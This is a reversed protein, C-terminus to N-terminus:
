RRRFGKKDRPEGEAQLHELIEGVTFHSGTVCVLDDARAMKRALHYAKVASPEVLYGARVKRVLPVLAQADLARETEPQTAVVLDADPLLLELMAPYDKDAMVGFVLVLRHFSFIEKISKQLAAAGAPNHAVDLVTLPNRAVTQLRGPWRVSLLGQRLHGDTIRFGRQRLIEVSRIALVANDLQHRGVLPLQLQRYCGEGSSYSFVTVEPSLCEQKCKVEDGVWHFKAQKSRSFEKMVQLARPDMQGCLVEGKEKVIGAKEKAIESITHGLYQCHELSVNTIVSLIPNVVNTADLRGGMGTELVAIDVKQAAFYWIAMATVTEFFTCKLQQIPSKMLRVFETVQDTGIQQGSVQIRETFRFLHPSTFLGTRYGAQRLISEIQAATSGKGNTGAIHIFDMQQQPNGLESLLATIKRLGLKIGFKQLNYLFLLAQQYTLM